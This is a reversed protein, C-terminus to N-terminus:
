GAPGLMGALLRALIDGYRDAPGATAPAQTLLRALRPYDGSVAAHQLYAGNRRQGASGGALENQVFAATVANLIAFAELKATMDAPHQELVGLVHELLKLGNPGLVPRTVVLAALWPHRRMIARAQQGVDVLDALWDGTPTAFAYEAGASDMM